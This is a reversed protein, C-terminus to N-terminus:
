QYIIPVDEPVDSSSAPASRGGMSRLAIAQLRERQRQRSWRCLHCRKCASGDKCKDKGFKCPLGCDDPHGISGASSFAESGESNASLVANRPSITSDVPSGRQPQRACSDASASEVLQLQRARSDASSSKVVETEVGGASASSANAPALLRTQPIDALEPQQSALPPEGPSAEECDDRLM